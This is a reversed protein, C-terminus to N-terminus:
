RSQPKLQVITPDSAALRAIENQQARWIRFQNFHDPTATFSPRMDSQLEELCEAFRTRLAHLNKASPNMEYVRIESSINGEYIPIYGQKDGSLPKYWARGERGIFAEMDRAIELVKIDGAIGLYGAAIADLQAQRKRALEAKQDEEYQKALQAARGIDDGLRDFANAAAKIAAVQEADLVKEFETMAARLNTSTRRVVAKKNKLKQEGGSWFLKFRKFILEDRRLPANDACAERMFSWSEEREHGKGCDFKHWFASGTFHRCNECNIRVPKPLPEPKSKKSM